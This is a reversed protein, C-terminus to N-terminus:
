DHKDGPLRITFTAGEGPAASLSIRGGHAEVIKRTIYLGIGMGSKKSSFFPDFARDAEQRTMGRGSDKVYLLLDRRDRVARLTVAGSETAEVANKLLNSLVQGFFDRDASVTVPTKEQYVISVGDPIGATTLAEIKERVLEALPFRTIKLRLPKLSASFQDVIRSIRRVEDRGLRLDEGTDGGTKRQLSQFLLSLRNLPNKIEHAVGSTFASIERYRLKERRQQELEREKALYGAQLRYVGIFFFVGTGGILIFILLFSRWSHRTMDELAQLSYGLYLFYETRDSTRFASFVNFIRGAPSDIIWSERAEDSRTFLPLYGEFRSRWALIERNEDLLALFYIDEKETYASFIRDPSIGDELFHAINVELLGAAAMLQEGVLVRVKRQVYARNINSFLFTLAMIGVWPLFFFLRGPRRIMIVAGVPEELTRRAM